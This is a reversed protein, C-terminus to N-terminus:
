KANNNIEKKTLIPRTASRGSPDGVRATFDGILLIVKHGLNQLQRLKRLIVSHGLHLDPTTPDVGFKIRLPKNEILAKELKQKLEKEPLVEEAGWGINNIQKLVDDKM